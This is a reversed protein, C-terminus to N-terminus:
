EVETKGERNGDSERHFDESCREQHIQPLLLIRDALYNAQFTNRRRRKGMEKRTIGRSCINAGKKRIACFFGQFKNGHGIDEDKM